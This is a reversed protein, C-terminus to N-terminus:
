ILHERAIAGRRAATKKSKRVRSRRRTPKKRKKSQLALTRDRSLVIQPTRRINKVEVTYPIFAEIKNFEDNMVEASVSFKKIEDKILMEWWTSFHSFMMHLLLDFNRPIEHDATEWKIQRNNLGNLWPPGQEVEHITLTVEVNNHPHILPFVLSEIYDAIDIAMFNVSSDPEGWLTRLEHFQADPRVSRLEGKYVAIKDNYIRTSLTIPAGKFQRINKLVDGPLSSLPM